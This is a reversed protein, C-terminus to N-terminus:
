AQASRLSVHGRLREHSVRTAVIRTGEDVLKQATAADIIKIHCTATAGFMAPSFTTLVHSIKM